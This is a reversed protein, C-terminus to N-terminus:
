LSLEHQSERERQLEQERHMAWIKARVMKMVQEQIQAEVVELINPYNKRLHTIVAMWVTSIHKRFDQHAQLLRVISEAESDAVALDRRRLLEEIALDYIAAPKGRIRIGNHRSSASM